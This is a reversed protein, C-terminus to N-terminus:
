YRQVGIYSNDMQNIIGHHDPKYIGLKKMENIIKVEEEHLDECAHEGLEGTGLSTYTPNFVDKYKKRFRRIRQLAYELKAYYSHEKSCYLQHPTEPRYREGCWKCNKARYKYITIEVKPQIVGTINNNQIIFTTQCM